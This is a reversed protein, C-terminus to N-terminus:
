TEGVEFFHYAGAGEDEQETFTWTGLYEGCRTLVDGTTAGEELGIFNIPYTLEMDHLYSRHFAIAVAKASSRLKM